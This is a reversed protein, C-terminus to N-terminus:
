RTPFEGSLPMYIGARAVCYKVYFDGALSSLGVLGLVAMSVSGYYSFVGLGIPVVLGLLVVGLYFAVAARGGLLEAVSRRAAVGSNSMGALYILVLVASSVVVWLKILELPKLEIGGVGLAAAVLLIAAGGRVGYAIYLPPLLPTNWFPIAKSVAYVFGKYLLIGAVGLLSLGWLVQGLTGTAWGSRDLWWYIAGSILFLTMSLLGRSIWSSHPRRVIRWARGLRGLFILHALGGLAVVVLSILLGAPLEFYLSFLWTGAGAGSLFHGLLLFLGRGAVWERQPRLTAKLDESLKQFPDEWVAM